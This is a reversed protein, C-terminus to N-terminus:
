SGTRQWRGAHAARFSGRAPGVPIGGARVAAPGDPMRPPSQVGAAPSKHPLWVFKRYSWFRFLTALGLGALFAANLMVKSTGAQLERDALELCAQQILVGILNLVIFAATERGLGTRERHRFTWYRSGVFTVATAALTAVANAPLTAQRESLMLNFVGDTVLFGTAGVMAFKAFEHILCRFRRYWGSVLSM